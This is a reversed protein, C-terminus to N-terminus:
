KNKLLYLGRKLIGDSAFFTCINSFAQKQQDITQNQLNVNYRCCLCYDSNLETIIGVMLFQLVTFPRFHPPLLSPALLSCSLKSSQRRDLRWQLVATHDHETIISRTLGPM